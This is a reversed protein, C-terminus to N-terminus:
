KMIKELLTYDGLKIKLKNLHIWIKSGLLSKRIKIKRSFTMIGKFIKIKNNNMNNMMLYFILLGNPVTMLKNPIIITTKIIIKPIM